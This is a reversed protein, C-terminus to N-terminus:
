LFLESLIENIKDQEFYPIEIMKVSHKKCYERKLGDRIQSKKFDATADYNGGKFNVPFFHQEGQYEIVLNYEPIYFDYKLNEVYKCKYFVCERIYEINHLDLWEAIENEHISKNCIPCPPRRKWLNSAHSITHERGCKHCIYSIPSNAGMYKTILTINWRKEICNHFEKRKIELRTQKNCNSCNRGHLLKNPTIKWEKGCEKCKVLIPTSDNIYEGLVEINNPFNKNNVFDEKNYSRHSCGCTKGTILNNVLMKQVGKHKHKKCIFEVYSGKIRKIFIFNRRECFRKLDEDSYKSM